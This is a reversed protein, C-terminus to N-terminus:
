VSDTHCDTSLLYCSSSVLRLSSRCSPPSSLLNSVSLFLVTLSIYSIDLHHPLHHLPFAPCAICSPSISPSTLSSLSLPKLLRGPLPLHLRIRNTLSPQSRCYRSVRHRFGAQLSDAPVYWLLAAARASELFVRHHSLSAERPFVRTEKM